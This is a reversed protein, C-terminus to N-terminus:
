SFYAPFVKKKDKIRQDLTYTSGARTNLKFIRGPVPTYEIRKNAQAKTKNIKADEEQKRELFKTRQERFEEVGINELQRVRQRVMGKMQSVYKSKKVTYSSSSVDSKM